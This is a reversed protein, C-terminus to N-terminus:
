RKPLLAPRQSMEHYCIVDEAFYHCVMSRRTAGSKTIPSGGHLLNAHWILVDGRRALFLQKKLGKEQIIQEIKDEYHRNNHEGITFATNWSDYDETTVFPLRHSGPFYFLPGNEATCDELAAWTAILYGPPETTMHISDSHARQESGLTFNLSQFPVVKKGLLFSLLRTLDPNQFFREDALRSTEWLNFIKRGTFNYGAKGKQLLDDVEANLTATDKEPFFNELVMYGEAVFQRIKNKLSDDFHQFDPNQELRESANPQDLWPIDPHHQKGFDRSGLPSFISKRLGYRHYLERNHRLRDANLFNNLVYSAKLNRLFGTHKQFFRQLSFNAMADIRRKLM